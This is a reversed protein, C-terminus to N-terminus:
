ADLHDGSPLRWSHHSGWSRRHNYKLAAGKLTCRATCSLETCSRSTFSSVLQVARTLITLTPGESAATQQVSCMHLCLHLTCRVGSYHTYQGFTIHFTNMVINFLYLTQNCDSWFNATKLSNNKVLVTKIGRHIKIYYWFSGHLCPKRYL